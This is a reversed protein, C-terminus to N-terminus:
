VIISVFVILNLHDGFLEKIQVFKLADLLLLIFLSSVIPLTFTPIKFARKQHKSGLNTLTAQVCMIVIIDITNIIVVLDDDWFASGEVVNSHTADLSPHRCNAGLNTAISTAEAVSHWSYELLQYIKGRILLSQGDDFTQPVIQAATALAAANPTKLDFPRRSTTNHHRHHHRRHLHHLRRRRHSRSTDHLHRSTALRRGVLDHHRRRSTAHLRRSTVLPRCTSDVVLLWRSSQQVNWTCCKWENRTTVVEVM